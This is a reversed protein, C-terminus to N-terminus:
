GATAAQGHKATWAQMERLRQGQIPWKSMVCFYGFKCAAPGLIYVAKATAKTADSQDFPCADPEYGALSFAAVLGLSVTTSFFQFVANMSLLLGERRLGTRSEDDDMTWGRMMELSMSEGGNSVGFVVAAFYLPWLRDRNVLLYIPSLVVQFLRTWRTINWPRAVGRLLLSRYVPITLVPLAHLLMQVSALTRGMQTQDLGVSYVLFFSFFVAEIDRGAAEAFMCAALYRFSDCRLTTVVGQSFSLPKKGDTGTPRFRCGRAPGVAIGQGFSLGAVLVAVLHVSGLQGDTAQACAAEQAAAADFASAPCVAAYEASLGATANAYCGCAPAVTCDTFADACCTLAGGISPRKAYILLPIATSLLNVVM